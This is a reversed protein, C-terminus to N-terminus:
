SLRAIAPSYDDIVCVTSVTSVTSVCVACMAAAAAKFPCAVSPRWNRRLWARAVSRDIKKVNFDRRRRVAATPARATAAIRARVDEFEKAGEDIQDHV